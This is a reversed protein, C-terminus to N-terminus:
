WSCTGKLMVNKGLEGTLFTQHCVQTGKLIDRLKTEPRDESRLSLIAHSHKDLQVRAVDDKKARKIELFVLHMSNVM